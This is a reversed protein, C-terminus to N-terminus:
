DLKFWITFRNNKYCHYAKTKIVYSILPLLKRFGIKFRHCWLCPPFNQKEERKTTQMKIIMAKFLCLNGFLLIWMLIISPLLLVRIDIPNSACSLIFMTFDCPPNCQMVIGNLQGSTKWEFSNENLWLCKKRWKTDRYHHGIM